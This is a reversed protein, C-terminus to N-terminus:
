LIYKNANFHIDIAFMQYCASFFNMFNHVSYDKKKYQFFFLTLVIYSLEM